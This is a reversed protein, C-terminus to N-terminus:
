IAIIQRTQPLRSVLAACRGPPSAAPLRPEGRLKGERHVKRLPGRSQLLGRRSGERGLVGASERALSALFLRPHQQRGRAGCGAPSGNRQGPGRQSGSGAPCRQERLPCVGGREERGKGCRYFGRTRSAPAGTGGAAAAAAAGGGQRARRRAKRPPIPSPTPTLAPPESVLPQAEVEPSARVVCAGWARFRM